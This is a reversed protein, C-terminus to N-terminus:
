GGPEAIFTLTRQSGVAVRPTLEMKLLDIIGGKANLGSEGSGKLRAKWSGQELFTM